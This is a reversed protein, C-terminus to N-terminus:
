AVAFPPNPETNFALGPALEADPIVDNLTTRRERERTVREDDARQQSKARARPKTEAARDETMEAM